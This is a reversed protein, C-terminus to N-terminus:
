FFGVKSAFRSLPSSGADLSYSDEGLHSGLSNTVEEPRNITPSLTPSLAIKPRSKFVSAYNADQSFLQEPPTSTKTDSSRSKTPTEFQNIPHSQQQYLSKRSPQSKTPLLSMSQRTRELLTERGDFTATPVLGPDATPILIQTYANRIDGPSALAMSKRTREVLSLKPKPPSMRADMTSPIIQDAFLENEDTEINHAKINTEVIKPPVLNTSKVGSSYNSPSNLSLPPEFVPNASTGELNETGSTGVIRKIDIAHQPDNIPDSDSKLHTKKPEKFPSQKNAESITNRSEDDFQQNDAADDVTQDVSVLESRMSSILREYGEIMSSVSGGHPRSEKQTKHLLNTCDLKLDEHRSFGLSVCKSHRPGIEAQLSNTNELATVALEDRFTKWRELRAAQSKVRIDLNQILSQNGFSDLGSLSGDVVHSRIKSFPIDLLPDHSGQEDGNFLVDKWRPDGQWHIEFQQKIEQIKDSKSIVDNNGEYPLNLAQERRSLEKEKIDLLHHFEQYRSRLRSKQRLINILSARHAIALPLLSKQEELSLSAMLALRRAASTGGHQEAAVLKHLVISSFAALVEELKDGKCEDLM